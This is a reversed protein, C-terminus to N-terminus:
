AKGISRHGTQRALHAAVRRSLVRQSTWALGKMRSAAGALLLEDPLMGIVETEVVRGGREEVMEEIREFVSMPSVSAPDELNMSVQVLGRSELTFALARLGPMGGDRERIARAIEAAGARTIGEAMVNWALLVPRAGVCTAGGTPHAADRGAGLDPARGDPWGGALTEFGGRRIGALPRGPPDSAEGYFYVPLGLGGALKTGVRRAVRR